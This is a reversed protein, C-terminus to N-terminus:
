LDRAWTPRGDWGPPPGAARRIRPGGEGDVAFFRDVSLVYKPVSQRQLGFIRIMEGVWAPYRETFKIELIPGPLPTAIWGEGNLSLITDLTPCCAVDTDLTIRLNDGAVSEYAQRVYRVRLFPRAAAVTVHGAFDALDAVVERTGSNTWASEGERLLASAESRSLKARRKLVVDNVRRKVELFVPTSPDDSYARVRLKFRNKEGAVTQRYLHLDFTDLYLSCIPYSHGQRNRAYTDPLMFPSIFRRIDSAVGPTVLYKCEYRSRLASDGDVGDRGM